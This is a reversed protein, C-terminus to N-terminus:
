SSAAGGVMEAVSGPESRRRESPTSVRKRQFRIFAPKKKALKSPLIASVFKGTHLDHLFASIGGRSEERVVDGECDADDDTLLVAGDELRLWLTDGNDSGGIPFLGSRAGRGEPQPASRRRPLERDSTVM